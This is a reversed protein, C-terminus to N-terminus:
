IREEKYLLVVVKYGAGGGDPYLGGDNLGTRRVFVCVCVYVCSCLWVLVNCM